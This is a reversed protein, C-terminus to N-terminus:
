RPFARRFEALAEAPPLAYASRRSTSADPVRGARADARGRRHVGGAGVPAPHRVGGGPRGPQGGLRSLGGAPHLVAPRRGPRHLEPVLDAGRARRAGPRSGTGASVVKPPGAAPLVPPLGFVPFLAPQNFSVVHAIGADGVTLVQVAHAHHRGDRGLLYCAFGPQANAAVPILKFDGPRGLVRTGLFRGIRSRGAFWTLIPPMEFIADERLLRSLAAADANEFAAAYRDLLARQTQGAPERIEDQALGAQEIRARARLLLGNVATTTTGLLDAVEAARWQLVDRLILVARQRAPLYQLAAILALRLSARSAVVSAPDAQVLADPVPELWPVEGPGAALPGAPDAAPAGLGSPLPRRARNELARLCTNTAIKYLWTRLSARGEFDGYSRWARIMTEQVQDEADHVSGLMRYCHALLEARFPDALQAFDAQDTM